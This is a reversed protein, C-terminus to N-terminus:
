EMRRPSCAFGLKGLPAAGGAAKGLLIIAAARLCAQPNGLFGLTEGIMNTIYNGKSILQPRSHAATAQQSARPPPLQSAPPDTGDWEQGLSVSM